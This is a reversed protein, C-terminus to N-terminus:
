YRFGLTWLPIIKGSPLETDDRLVYDANKRGKSKGGIELTLDGFVFDGDVENRCAAINTEGNVLAHAVFAERVNGTTGGLVHYMSPDFLYIKAGKSFAATDGERYIIRILGVHHMADLLQYLKAKSLGWKKCMSEINISPIKSLAMHGLVAHMLRYHNDTVQPVLYPIDFYLIKEIVNGLQEQYDWDLFIPRLGGSLYDRFEKQVNVDRVIGRIVDGVEAGSFPDFVPFEYGGALFLYERFSLLPLYVRSFRRSLDAVGMKLLISSSGSVWITKGPFSDVLSKLHVGWDRARHVEDLVIGEYGRGFAADGIEWLSSEAVLAHDASVYLFGREAARSLLYTTKGVGRAGVFLVARNKLEISDFVPRKKEPLYLEKRRQIKEFMEIM